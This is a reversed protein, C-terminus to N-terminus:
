QQTEMSGIFTDAERIAAELDKILSSVDGEVMALETQLSAIARANLNHKLFLVQDRLPQLVPEIRSEAKKMAQILKSYQKKTTDLQRKSKRRLSDSSYQKLEDQWEEFLAAAVDEVAAIRKRVNDAKDESRDLEDKLKDYKEELTGGKFDIVSRFQELASPFQKKADQQVDKADQVRDVLIDRKHVGFKEMAQYYAGQCGALLLVCCILMLRKMKKEQINRITVFKKVIRKERKRKYRSGMKWLHLLGNEKNRETKKVMRGYSSTIYYRQM